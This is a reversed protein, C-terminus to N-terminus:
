TDQMIKKSIALDEQLKLQIKDSAAKFEKLENDKGSFLLEFENLKNASLEIANNKSIM